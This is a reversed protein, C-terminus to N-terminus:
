NFSTSIKIVFAPKITLMSNLHNANSVIQKASIGTKKFYENVSYGGAILLIPIASGPTGILGKAYEESIGYKKLGEVILSM